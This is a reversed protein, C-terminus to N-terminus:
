RPERLWVRGAGTVAISSLSASCDQSVLSAEGRADTEVVGLWQGPVWGSVKAGAVPQGSPTRVSVTVRECGNSQVDVVPDLPRETWFALAPDGLIVTVLQTWRDPHDAAHLNEQTSYARLSEQLALGLRELGAEDDYLARTFRQMVVSLTPFGVGLHTSGVYAVGGTPGLVFVEGSADAADYDFRGGLCECTFLVAPRGPNDIAEVDACSSLPGITSENGHGMVFTMNHGQRYADFVEASTCPLAGPRVDHDEYLRTIAIDPPLNPVIYVELGTSGYIGAGAYGGILLLRDEYDGAPNQEYAILKQVYQEAEAPTSAPIRGIAVDPLLDAADDLEAYVGDGDPDWDGDLDAYYLDSAVTAEEYVGEADIDVTAFVARVPVREADGGLTVFRLDGDQWVQWLADKLRAADDPGQGQALADSLSIVRTSLGTRTRWAALPAYSEVMDDPAVIVADFRDIRNDTPPSAAQEESESSCATFSCAAALAAVVSPICFKPVRLM